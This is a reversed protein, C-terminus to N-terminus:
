KGSLYNNLIKRIEKSSPRAANKNVLEGKKNFIMFRPISKVKLSEIMRSSKSNEILFSNDNGVLDLGKLSKKWNKMKDYIALYVFVIDKDKYEEKLKHSFPMERKCPACWSAWFDVYVIKGKNKALVDNFSTKLGTDTLLKIDDSVEADLKYEKIMDAILCSDKGFASKFSKFCEKIRKNSCMSFLERFANYSLFKRTDFSLFSAKQISDYVVSPDPGFYNSSKKSIVKSGIENRSIEGIAGRYFSYKLLADDQPFDKFSYNKAAWMNIIIREYKVRQRYFDAVDKSIYDNLILSDLIKEEKNFQALVRPYNEIKFLSDAKQMARWRVKGSMSTFEKDHFLKHFNASHNILASFEGGFVDKRILEEYDLDYKKCKRSTRVVPMKDEYSIYLTDNPRALFSFKDLGKYKHEIELLSSVSKIRITDKDMAYDPFFCIPELYNVGYKIEQRGGNYGYAETDEYLIKYNMPIDDLILVVDGKEPVSSIEKNKTSCSSLSILIGLIIFVFLRNM